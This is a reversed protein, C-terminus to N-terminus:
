SFAMRFNPTESRGFFNRLFINNKRLKQFHEALNWHAFSKKGVKQDTLFYTASPMDRLCCVTMRNAEPPGGNAHLFDLILRRLGVKKGGYFNASRQSSLFANKRTVKTKICFYGFFWPGVSIQKLLSLFEPFIINKQPIEEDGKKWCIESHGYQIM